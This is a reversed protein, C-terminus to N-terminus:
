KMLKFLKEVCFKMTENNMLLGVGFYLICCIIINVILKWQNVITLRNLISVSIFSYIILPVLISSIYKKSISLKIINRSFYYYLMLDILETVFSTVAAGPAGYIPIFLINLIINLTAAIAVTVVYKNEQNTTVLVQGGMMTNCVVIPIMFALINLIPIADVFSDGFLMLIISERCVILGVTAPLAVMIMIQLGKNVLLSFEEKNQNSYVLSLRPFLVAGIAACMTIVMRTLKMANSYCGVLVDDCYIGLMTTDIMGYIEVAMSVMLLTMISKMHNKFSLKKAPKSIYKRLRIVNFIYNGGIALCYILAYNIYDDPTKIMFPLAILAIIKVIISRISIYKFEEMGQYFWDINLLNFAIQLGAVAYLLANSYFKTTILVIATYAVLAIITSIFNISFLEWFLQSREAKNTSRIATERVGYTPIGLSAFVVFYSVVNQAYAVMGMKEAM